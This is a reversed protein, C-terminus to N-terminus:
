YDEIAVCSNMQFIFTKNNFEMQVVSAMLTCKTITQFNSWLYFLFLLEASDFINSRNIAYMFQMFQPM